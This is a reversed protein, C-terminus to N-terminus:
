HHTGASLLAHTEEPPYGTSTRSSPLGAQILQQENLAELTKHAKAIFYSLVVADMTDAYSDLLLRSLAPGVSVTKTFQSWVEEKSAKPKLDFGKRVENPQMLIVPHGLTQWGRTIYGLFYAMMVLQVGTKSWYIAARDWDIAVGCGPDDAMATIVQSGLRHYQEYPSDLTLTLKSKRHWRFCVQVERLRVSKREDSFHFVSRVLAGHRLGPDFGYGVVLRDTPLYTSDIM